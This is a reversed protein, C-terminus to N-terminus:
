NQHDREIEMIARGIIEPIRPPVANGLAKLRHSRDSIREGVGCVRTKSLNWRNFGRPDSGQFEKTGDEIIQMTIEWFRELRKSSTTAIIWVHREMTPLGAVCSPLSCTRTSYGLQELEDCMADLGTDIFGQTNEGMFWAPEIEKVLRLMPSVMDRPDDSGRRHGAVSYPQCPFGASITDISIGDARLREATVDRVDEYIPVNPWHKALVKRPYEEIECFAVTTMGARELGLSFGGIGSFLDLVNM